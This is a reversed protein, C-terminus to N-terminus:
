ASSSSSASAAPAVFASRSPAISPCTSPWAVSVPLYERPYAKQPVTESPDFALDNGAPSARPQDCPPLERRPIGRAAEVALGVPRPRNGCKTVGATPDQDHAERRGGVPAVSCSPHEGAVLRAVKEEAGEELRAQCVSGLGPAPAVAQPKRSREHRGRAAARRRVVPRKGFLEVVAPLVQFALQREQRGPRNEHREAPQRERRAQLDERLCAHLQRPRPRMERVARDILDSIVLDQSRIVRALLVRERSFQRPWHQALHQARCHSLSLYPPIRRRKARATAM